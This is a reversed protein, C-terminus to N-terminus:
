PHPFWVQFEKKGLSPVQYQMDHQSVRYYIRARHMLLTSRLREHRQASRPLVTTAPFHLQSPSTLSPRQPGVSSTGAHRHTVSRRGSAEGTSGQCRCQGKVGKTGRLSAKLLSQARSPRQLDGHMCSQSVDVTAKVIVSGRGDTAPSAPPIYLPRVGKLGTEDQLGGGREM